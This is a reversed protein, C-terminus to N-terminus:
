VPDISGLERRMLDAGRTSLVGSRDTQPTIEVVILGPLAAKVPASIYERIRKAPGAASVLFAGEGIREGGLAEVREAIRRWSPHATDFACLFLSFQM